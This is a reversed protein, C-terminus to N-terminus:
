KKLNLIQKELLTTKLKMARTRKALTKELNNTHNALTKAMAMISTVDEMTLMIIPPFQGSITIDNSYIHRANLIITRNGITPFTHTVELGKFSTENQSIDQLLTHLIPIDWQGNGLKGVAVGETEKPKVQFLTYFAENAALVIYKKDLILVPEHLVDVVTKIYTCSKEWFEAFFNTGIKPYTNRTTTISTNM